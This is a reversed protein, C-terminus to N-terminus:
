PDEVRGDTTGTPTGQPGTRTATTASETTGVVTMIILTLTEGTMMTAVGATMTGQLGERKRMGGPLPLGPPGSIMSIAAGPLLGLANAATPHAIMEATTGPTAIMATTRLTVTMGRMATTRVTVPTDTMAVIMGAPSMGATTTRGVASYVYAETVFFMPSSLTGVAADLAVRVPQGRLDRGDLEKM